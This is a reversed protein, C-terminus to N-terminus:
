EPRSGPNRGRLFRGGNLGGRNCVSRTAIPLGPMREAGYTAADRRIPIVVEVPVTGNGKPTDGEIDMPVKLRRVGCAFPVVSKTGNGKPTDGGITMPVKLRRVGCAFPVLVYTAYRAVGFDLYPRYVLEFVAITAVFWNARVSNTALYRLGDPDIQNLAWDNVRFAATASKVLQRVRVDHFGHLM